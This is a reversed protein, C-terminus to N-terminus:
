CYDHILDLNQEYTLEKPLALIITRATQASSSKEATDVANWLTQPDAYEKPVNPPLMVEILKVRRASSHPEKWCYEYQSWMKKGANYACKAMCSQGKGRSVIDIHMTPCPM